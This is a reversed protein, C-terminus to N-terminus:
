GKQQDMPKHTGHQQYDETLAASGASRRGSNVSSSHGEIQYL